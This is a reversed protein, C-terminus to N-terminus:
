YYSWLLLTKLIMLWVMTFLLSLLISILSTGWHVKDEVKQVSVMRECSHKLINCLIERHMFVDPVRWSRDGSNMPNLGTSSDSPISCAWGLVKWGGNGIPCWGPDNYGKTPPHNSQHRSDLVMPRGHENLTVLKLSLLESSWSCTYDCASINEIDSTQQRLRGRHLSVIAPGPHNKDVRPKIPTEEKAPYPPLSNCKQRWRPMGIVPKGEM